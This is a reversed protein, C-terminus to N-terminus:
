TNSCAGTESRLKEEGVPHDDFGVNRGPEIPKRPAAKMREDDGRQANGPNEVAELYRQDAGDSPRQFLARHQPEAVGIYSKGAAGVQHTGDGASDDESPKRVSEAALLEEEDRETDIEECRRSRRQRP